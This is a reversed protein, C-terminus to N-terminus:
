ILRVTPGVVNSSSAPYLVAGFCNHGRCMFLQVISVFHSFTGWTSAAQLWQCARCRSTQWDNSVCACASRDAFRVSQEVPTTPDTSASHASSGFNNVAMISGHMDDSTM